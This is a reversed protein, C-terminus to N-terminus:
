PQAALIKDFSEEPHKVMAKAYSRHMEQLLATYEDASKFASKYDYYGTEKKKEGIYYNLDPICTM